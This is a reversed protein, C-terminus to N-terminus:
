PHTSSVELIVIYTWPLTSLFLAQKINVEREILAM